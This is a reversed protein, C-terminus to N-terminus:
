GSGLPLFSARSPIRAQERHARSCALAWSKAAKDPFLQTGKEGFPVIQLKGAVIRYFPTMAIRFRSERSIPKSARKVCTSDPCV